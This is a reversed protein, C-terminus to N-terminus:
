KQILLRNFLQIVNGESLNGDVNKLVWLGIHIKLSWLPVPRDFITRKSEERVYVISWVFVCVRTVSGKIPVSGDFMMSLVFMRKRRWETGLRVARLDM